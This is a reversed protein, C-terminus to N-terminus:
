WRSWGVPPEAWDDWEFNDVVAATELSGRTTSITGLGAFGSETPYGLEVAQALMDREARNFFVASPDVTVSESMPGLTESRSTAGEPNRLYRAAALVTVARLYEAAAAPMEILAGDDDVWTQGTAARVAMSVAWLAHEISPAPIGALEPVKAM